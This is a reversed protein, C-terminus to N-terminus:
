GYLRRKVGFYEKDYNYHCKKCLQIWDNLEKQYTNSKNAWSIYDKRGCFECKSAKGLTQKVWNHLGYYTDLDFLGKNWPKKGLHAKSQKERVEISTQLGKNWPEQGIHGKRNIERHKETRIYVGKPM